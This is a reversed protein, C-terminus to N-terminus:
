GEGAVHQLHHPNGCLKFERVTGVQRVSCIQTVLHSLVQLPPHLSHVSFSKLFFILFFDTYYFIHEDTVIYLKFHKCHLTPTTSFSKCLYPCLLVSFCSFAFHPNEQHWSPHLASAGCMLLTM